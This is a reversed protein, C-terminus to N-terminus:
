KPHDKLMERYIEVHRRAVVLPHFREQAQRKAEAALTRGLEPEALLKAIAASMDDGNRPDFLLGTKGNEVLDPIGGVRSAVVPVGAAMAELVVMPCNDELTPLVLGDAVGLWQKLQQRDAIGEHRCWSRAKVLSLFEAGYPGFPAAQNVRGLFVLRFKHESVIPDLSRILQNQNKYSIIDAVCLLTPEKEVNRQIEFCAEDVANPVLWTKRALSQV